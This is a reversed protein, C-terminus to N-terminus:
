TERDTIIQWSAGPALVIRELVFHVNSVLLTREESLRKPSTQSAASGLHAVAAGDAKQLVRDRGHDFLRYTSDSRQQIEAVIINAGIAHITGAPVSFVDGAKTAQWSVIQEISGDDIARRLEIRTLARNLGLAVKAGLDAELVYWAESKGNPLGVSKAYDDDPHVQISLPASTFLVKLLLSPVPSTDDAREYSVEGIPDRDHRAECWPSLNGVGWPKARTLVRAREITM